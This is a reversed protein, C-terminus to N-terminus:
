NEKKREIFRASLLNIIWNNPQIHNCDNAFDVDKVSCIQFAFAAIAGSRCIGASCNIILSKEKKSREHKLIFNIIKDAHKTNMFIMDEVSFCKMFTQPEIDDFKMQILNDTENVFIFEMDSNCISIIVTEDDLLNSRNWGEIAKRSVAMIRTIM